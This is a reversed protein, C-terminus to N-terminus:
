RVYTSLSSQLELGARQVSSLVINNLHRPVILSSAINSVKRRKANVVHQPLDDEEEDDDDDRRHWLQSCAGGSAAAAAATVRQSDASSHEESSSSVSESTVGCHRIVSAGTCVM